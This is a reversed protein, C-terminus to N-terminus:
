KAEKPIRVKKANGQELENQSRKRKREKTPLGTEPATWDYMSGIDIGGALLADRVWLPPCAGIEELPQCDDPDSSAATAPTKLSLDDNTTKKKVLGSHFQAMLFKKVFEPFQQSAISERM